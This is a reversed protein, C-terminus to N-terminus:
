YVSISIIICVCVLPAECLLQVVDVHGNQSAVYLATTGDQMTKDQREAAISLVIYIYIYICIYGSTRLLPEARIKLALKYIGNRIVYFVM